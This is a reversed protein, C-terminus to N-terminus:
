GHRFWITWFLKWEYMIQVIIETPFGFEGQKQMKKEGFCSKTNSDCSQLTDKGLSLSTQLDLLIKRWTRHLMNSKQRFWCENQLLVGCASQERDRSRTPLVHRCFGTAPATSAKRVPGHEWQRHQDSTWEWGTASLGTCWSVGPVQVNQLHSILMELM